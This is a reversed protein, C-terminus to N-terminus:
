KLKEALAVAISKVDEINTALLPNMKIRFSASGKRVMLFQFNKGDTHVVAEDGVGPWDAFGANKKNSERIRNFETRASEETADKFLAFFIKGDGKESTFTCKWRRSGDEKTEEGDVSTLKSGLLKEANGFGFYHCAYPKAAVPEPVCAAAVLIFLVVIINTM